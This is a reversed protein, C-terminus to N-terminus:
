RLHKRPSQKALHDAPLLAEIQPWAEEAATRGAAILEEARKRRFDYPKVHGIRPVITVDAPHAVARARALEKMIMRFAVTGLQAIGGKFPVGPTIGESQAQGEYDGIVDVAIVREAGLARCASIPVPNKMGGDVLLADGQQVPTFIGPLSISARIGEAVRGSRILVERDHTLDAAVVAFPRDADEFRVDGLQQVILDVIRDGGILGPKWLKFDIHQILSLANIESILEEMRDLKDFVYAAGVIAGISTGAVADARVGRESLVKLVGIHAFGLAAGGGLALGLTPPPPAETAPVTM